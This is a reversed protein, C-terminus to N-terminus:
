QAPSMGINIRNSGGYKITAGNDCRIVGPNEQNTSDRTELQAVLIYSTGYGGCGPISTFLAYQLANTDSGVWGAGISNRPDRPLTVGMIAELNEWSDYASNAWHSNPSNPAGGAVSNTSPYQDNELYYVELATQISRIDQLRRADRAAARADGLSGLVITSLVGIISIVVLLEILTFGKKM